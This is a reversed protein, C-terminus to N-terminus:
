SHKRKYMHHIASKCHEISLISHPNHTYSNPDVYTCPHLSLSGPHTGRQQREGVICLPLALPIANNRDAATQRDTQTRNRVMKQDLVNCIYRHIYARIRTGICIHIGVYIRVFIHVDM